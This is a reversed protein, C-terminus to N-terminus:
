GVLSTQACSPQPSVKKFPLSVSTSQPPMHEVLHPVSLVQATAPSQTLALQPPVGLTQRAGEHVSPM